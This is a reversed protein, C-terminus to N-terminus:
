LQDIKRKIGDGFYKNKVSADGSSGGGSGIAVQLGTAPTVMVSQLGSMTFSGAISTVAGGAGGVTTLGGPRVSKAGAGGGAGPRSKHGDEIKKRKLIGRDQAMMRLKGSGEGVMGLGIGSDGITKEEEGFAMRNQAKRMDTMGYRKKVARAKRGGRKNKKHEAPAPLAKIQKTPPPEQWKEIKAEIEEKYQQGLEGYHNSEQCSDVRAAISVRGTIARIAQKQLYVPASKVIDCQSIFGMQFKRNGMGSFGALAKTDAGFTQLNGAPIVALNSVSGAIGILRAAISGGLLVSLNPAIFAMRSELYGLIVKKTKDLEIAMDCASNIRELEGDSLSKDTGSSMIVVMITAKPLLDSLNINILDDQNGIRKVVLIYDLPNQITNSLSPFKTSYKEKVYKHILYIEHQIDQIIKNCDVILQHEIVGQVTKKGKEPLAQCLQHEVKKLINSLRTSNKLTAISEIPADKISSILQNQKKELIDDTLMLDDKEGVDDADEEEQNKTQQQQQQDKTLSSSEEEDRDNDEENDDRDDDDDYENNYNEDGIDNLDNLFEDALTSMIYETEVQKRTIIM